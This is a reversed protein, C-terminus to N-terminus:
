SKKVTLNQYVFGMMLLFMLLPNVILRHVQSLLPSSLESDGELNLKLILYLPLLLVLEILFLYYAAKLYLQKEFVAYIFIICAVDNLILRITKNMAFIFNPNIIQIAEPLFTNILGAFSVRQFLYVLLLMSLSIAILFYKKM